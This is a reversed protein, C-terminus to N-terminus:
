KLLVIKRTIKETGMLLRCFYIGCAVRNGQENRGDWFVTFSGASHTKNLLTKIRKGTVDYIKLSVNQNDVPVGYRIATTGAVSLPNPYNQALFLVRTKSKKPPALYIIPDSTLYPTFDVLGRFKAPNPAEGPETGWWNNEAFISYSTSTYIYWQQNYISNSGGMLLAGLTPRAGNINKVGVLNQEIKSHGIVPDSQSGDCLVGSINNKWIKSNQIEGCSQSFYVGNQENSEIFCWEITSPNSGVFKIGDYSNNKIDCRNLHSHDSSSFSMGYYNNTTVCTDIVVSDCLSVMIGASGNNCFSSNSIRSATAASDSLYLGHVECDVITTHDIDIKKSSKIGHYAKTILCNSIQADASSGSIRVGSWHENEATGGAPIMQVPNMSTGNVELTGNIDIEVRVTDEGSREVDQRLIMLRCGPELTLTNGATITVDGNVYVDGSLTLDYDFTGHLTAEKVIKMAEYVNLIGTGKRRNYEYGSCGEETFFYGQFPREDEVPVYEDCWTPYMDYDWGAPDNPDYTSSKLINKIEHHTLYPDLSWLLAAAGSVHATAVSTGWVTHYCTDCEIFVTTDYRSSLTVIEYATSDIPNPSNPCAVGGPAALDVYVECTDPGIYNTYDTAYCLSDIAGVCIVNSYYNESDQRSFIAPYQISFAGPKTVEEPKTNGAAAVVLVNNADAYAIANELDELEDSLPVPINISANIIYRKDPNNIAGSVVTEIGNTLWNATVIGEGEGSVGVKIFWLRPFWSTGVMGNYTGSFAGIVGAMGMAHNQIDDYEEEVEEESPDFTLNYQDGQIIRSSNEPMDTHNSYGSDLIAVVVSSDGYTYSTWADCAKIKRLAWQKTYLTDPIIYECFTGVYNYNVYKINEDLELERKIETIDLNKDFRMVGRNIFYNKTTNSLNCNYRSAITQAMANGVHDKFGILLENEVYRFTGEETVVTRIPMKTISRAHTSVLVLLVVVCCCVKRTM